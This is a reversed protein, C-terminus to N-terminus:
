YLFVFYPFNVYFNESFSILNLKEGIGLFTFTQDFDKETLFFSYPLKKFTFM